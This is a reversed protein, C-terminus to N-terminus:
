HSRLKLVGAVPVSPHTEDSVWVRAASIVAMEMVLLSRMFTVLEFGASRNLIFTIRWLKDVHPGCYKSGQNKEVCEAPRLATVTALTWNQKTM